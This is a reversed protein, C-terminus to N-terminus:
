RHTVRWARGDVYQVTRGRVHDCAVTRPYVRVSEAAHEQCYTDLHRTAASEARMGADVAAHPDDGVPEGWKIPKSMGSGM